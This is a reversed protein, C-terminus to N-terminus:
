YRRFPVLLIRDEAVTGFYRSDLSNAHNDGLMFYHGPPVTLPYQPPTFPLRPTEPAPLSPAGEASIRPIGNIHLKGDIIDIRDGPIAAIRQIYRSGPSTPPDFIVVDERQFDRSLPRHAPVMTGPPITPSMGSTPINFIRISGTLIVAAVLLSFAICFIAAKPFPKPKM